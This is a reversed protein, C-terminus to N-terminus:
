KNSVSKLPTDPINFYGVISGLGTCMSIGYVLERKYSPEFDSTFLKYICRVEGIIAVIWIAVVIISTKKM